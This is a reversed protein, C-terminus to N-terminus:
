QQVCVGTSARMSTPPRMWVATKDTRNHANSHLTGSYRLVRMVGGGRASKSAKEVILFTCVGLSPHTEFIEDLDKFFFM